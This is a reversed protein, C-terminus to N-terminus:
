KLLVEGQNFEYLRALVKALTTKGCGTEDMIGLREGPKLEFSIKNLVYKDGSYCFSLDKVALTIDRSEAELIGEAITSKIDLM